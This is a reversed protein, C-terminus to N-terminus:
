RFMDEPLLAAVKWSGRSASSPVSGGGWVEAGPHAGSPPSRAGLLCFVTRLITMLSYPQAFNDQM